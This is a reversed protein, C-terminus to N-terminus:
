YWETTSTKEHKKAKYKRWTSKRGVDEWTGMVKTAPASVVAAATPPEAQETTEPTIENYWPARSTAPRPIELSDKSQVGCIQDNVTSKSKLNVVKFESNKSESNEKLNKKVKVLPAVVIADEGLETKQRLLAPPPKKSTEEIKKFTAEHQHQEEVRDPQYREIGAAKSTSAYTEDFYDVRPEVRLTELQRPPGTKGTKKLKRELQSKVLLIEKLTYVGGISIVETSVKSSVPTTNVYLGPSLAKGRVEVEAPEEGEMPDDTLPVRRIMNGGCVDPKPTLSTPITGGTRATSHLKSDSPPKLM